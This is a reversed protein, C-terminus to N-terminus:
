QTPLEWRIEGGRGAVLAVPSFVFSKWGLVFRWRFPELRPDLHSTLAKFHVRHRKHRNAREIFSALIM